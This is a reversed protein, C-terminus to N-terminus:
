AELARFNGLTGRRVAQKAMEELKEEGIGVEKLTM